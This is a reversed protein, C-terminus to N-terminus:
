GDLGLKKINENMEDTLAGLVKDYGIEYREDMFSDYIEDFEEETDSLLLKPLTDAWLKDAQSKLKGEDSDSDFTITYQGVYTTYPYTWQKLQTIPNDPDDPIWQAALVDNQMMWYCSDAGYIEDYSTRDSNLLEQVDSKIVPNGDNDYDYTQGEVGLWTMKQGEESILYTLLEIARDPNECQKSILTVTWGNVSTGPLTYDDGAANKPGDVAIYISDPDNAYLTKEESEMDTYQYLMCFYQGNEIKESMQTRTDIFIDDKLLGESGLTRFAKLWSVFDENKHRDIANGNEDVYPVALFDMLFNDFSDCGNDNFETCGVPIMEKGNVTPYMEYAKEVADIFGEPTTMDPSGIAEYIDKRVLFTENSALNDYTDYDSPSCASNPYQYIHGDDSTYWGVVEDNVVDFFYADYEDALEDLAYVKDENIMQSIEPEWWGLTVLDPLTDLSIMSDLKENADGTPIVFDISCGTEETIAKSVMNDGWGTTFWSFNIYWSLTVPDPTNEKASESGSCGWFPLVLVGCLVTLIINKFAKKM